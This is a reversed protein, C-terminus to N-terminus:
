NPCMHFMCGSDLIWDEHPKYNADYALLLDGDSYNDEAVSAEGSNEPQKGKQESARKNKNQLKYCKSIIHGKKRAITALRTKCLVALIRRIHGGQFM